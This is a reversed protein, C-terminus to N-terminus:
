FAFRILLVVFVTTLISIGYNLGVQYTFCEKLTIPKGSLNRYAWRILAGPITLIYELLVYFFLELLVGMHKLYSITKIQNPPAM